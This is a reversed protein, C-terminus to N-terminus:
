FSVSLVLVFVASLWTILLEGFAVWWVAVRMGLYYIVYSGM